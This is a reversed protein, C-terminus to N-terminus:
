LRGCLQLSRSPQCRKRSWAAWRQLVPCLSPRFRPLVAPFSCWLPESYVLACELQAPERLWQRPCIRIDNIKELVALSWLDLITFFRLIFPWGICDCGLVSLPILRM